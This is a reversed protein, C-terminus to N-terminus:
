AKVLRNLDEIHSELGRRALDFGKQVEPPSDPVSEMQRVLCVLVGDIGAEDVAIDVGLIRSSNRGFLLGFRKDVPVPRGAEETDPYRFRVSLTGTSPDYTADLKEPLYYPSLVVDIRLGNRVMVPGDGSDPLIAFSDHRPENM